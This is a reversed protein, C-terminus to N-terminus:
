RYGLVYFNIKTKISQHRILQAIPPLALLVLYSLYINNLLMPSWYCLFLRRPMIDDLGLFGGQPPLMANNLILEDHEGRTNAVKRFQRQDHPIQAQATM